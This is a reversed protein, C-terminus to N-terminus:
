LLIEPLRANMEASATHSTIDDKSTKVGPMISRPACQLVFTLVQTLLVPRLRSIFNMDRSSRSIIRLRSTFQGDILDVNFVFSFKKRIDWLFCLSVAINSSFCINLQYSM